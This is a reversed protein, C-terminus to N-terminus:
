RIVVMKRSVIQGSSELTIFYMGEPLWSADWSITHRGAIRREDLLSAMERGTTHFVRVRVHLSEPIEFVISTMDHVPNPENQKLSLYIRRPREPTAVDMSLDRFRFVGDDRTIIYYWGDTGSELGRIIGLSDMPLPSWNEGFDHSVLLVARQDLIDGGAAFVTNSWADYLVHTLHVGAPAEYATSWDLGGNSTRFIRSSAATFITDASSGWFDIGYIMGFPSIDEWIEGYDFSRALLIGAFGDAGGVLVTGPFEQRVKVTQLAGEITATFVPQWISDGYFRRYLARGGAAFTEGCITPDPYGDLATVSSTTSPLIGDSNEEFAGGLYSCFVFPPQSNEPAIGAAISWGIPGSKHPYVTLVQEDLTIPQWDIKNTTGEHQWFVGNRDTGVALIGYNIDLATLQQKALGLYELQIQSSVQRSASLVTLLIISYKKM